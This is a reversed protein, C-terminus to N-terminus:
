FSERKRERGVKKDDGERERWMGVDVEGGREREIDTYMWLGHRHEM